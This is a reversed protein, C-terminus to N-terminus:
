PSPAAGAGHSPPRRGGSRPRSTAGSRRVSPRSRALRPRAPAHGGGCPGGSSTRRNGCRRARGLLRSARLQSNSRPGLSRAFASGDALVWAEQQGTPPRCRRVHVDGEAGGFVLTTSAKWAAVSSFPPLVPSPGPPELPGDEQRAEERVAPPVIELREGCRARFGRLFSPHGSSSNVACARRHGLNHERSRARGTRGRNSSHSPVRRRIEVRPANAQLWVKRVRALGEQSCEGRALIFRRLLPVTGLPAAMTSGAPRHSVPVTAM